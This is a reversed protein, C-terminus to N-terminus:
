EPARRQGTRVRGGGCVVAVLPVWLRLSPEYSVLGYGQAVLGIVGAARLPLIHWIQSFARSRLLLAIALLAGLGRDWYSDIFALRVCAM